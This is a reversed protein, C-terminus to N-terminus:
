GAASANEALAREIERVLTDPDIPKRLITGAAGALEVEPVSAAGTLYVIKLDRRRLRAMRALAFGHPRGPVVLDTVLLNIPEGSDLIGIADISNGTDIVRFGARRMHRALAYRLAEDDEVFLIAAASRPPAPAGPPSSTQM